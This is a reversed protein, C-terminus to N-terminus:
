YYNENNTEQSLPFEILDSSMSGKLLKPSCHTYTKQEQNEFNGQSSRYSLFKEVFNSIIKIGIHPDYSFVNALNKEKEENLCHKSANTSDKEAENHAM